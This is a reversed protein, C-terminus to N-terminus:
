GVAKVVSTHAGCRDGSPYPFHALTAGMVTVWVCKLPHPPSWVACSILFTLFFMKGEWDERQLCTAPNASPNFPFLFILSLIKLHTNLNQHWGKNTASDQALRKAGRLGLKRMKILHIIFVGQLAPNGFLPLVSMKPWFIIHHPPQGTCQLINLLM